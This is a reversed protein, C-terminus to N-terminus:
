QVASLALEPNKDEVVMKVLTLGVFTGVSMTVITVVAVSEITGLLSIAIIDGVVNVAVMLVVKAANLGPRGLSDLALGTFRDAPMLLVAVAFVRTVSAAEVYAEGAVLAVIPEAWILLVVSFPVMLATVITSSKTLLALVGVPNDKLALRSYEPYLSSTLGRLPIELAEVAKQAANYLGVYLPGLFAGILFTDSSRLANSGALTGMSYAGFIGLRKVAHYRAQKIAHLPAWRTAVAVASGIVGALIQVTAVTEVTLETSLAIGSVSVLFIGNVILRLILVRDFRSAAQQVWGAFQLPLTVIFVVPWYDFFLKWGVGLSDQDIALGVILVIVTLSLSVAVALSLGAGIFANKTNEDGSSAHRVLGSQVFGSRLMDLMSAGTLYLVWVGFADPTLSRVIVLFSAFGLAATVGQVAVAVTHQNKIIALM